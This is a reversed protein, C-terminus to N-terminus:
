NIPREASVAAAVGVAGLPAKMNFIESYVIPHIGEGLDGDATVTLALGEIVSGNHEIEFTLTGATADFPQQSFAAMDPTGLTIVPEGHVVGPTGDAKSYTLVIDRGNGSAIDFAM